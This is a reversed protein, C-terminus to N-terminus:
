PIIDRATWRDVTSVLCPFHLALAMLPTTVQPGPWYPAASGSWWTKLSMETSNLTSPQGLPELFAELGLQKCHEPSKKSWSWPHKEVHTWFLGFVSSSSTPPCLGKLESVVSLGGPATPVSWNNGASSSQIQTDFEALPWSWADTHGRYRDSPLSIIIYHSLAWGQTSSRNVLVLGTKVKQTNVLCLFTLKLLLKCLRPVDMLCIKVQVSSLNSLILNTSNQWEDFTFLAGFEQAKKVWM